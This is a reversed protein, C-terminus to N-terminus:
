VHQTRLPHLILQLRMQEYLVGLIPVFYVRLVIKYFVSVRTSYMLRVAALRKEKFHYFRLALRLADFIDNYSTAEKDWKLSIYNINRVAAINGIIDIEM